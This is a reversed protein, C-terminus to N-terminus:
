KKKAIMDKCFALAEEGPLGATKMKKVYDDLIPSVAKAWRANEEDSLSITQNGKAAAFAKGSKDMADWAAGTKTIWEENVKEIVDQVDKPLKEWRAKNMAVFFTTTYAAGYCETTSKVVEGWRWGELSEEPAMSGDVVGRSLADYTEGMPMSVPTGGLASVIKSSLGTCRVKLGKLDDLTKVPKKTHLFGPGHAHLYMIKVGDFEKPAFKKRFANTMATADVGSRVGLPLDLVESLPFKGRTYSLCSMGIDSIGKEVGDYCVEAKTLTGSPFVTIKVKGDTRKEIEKAWEQALITNKHTPPFFVSYTLEIAKGAGASSASGTTEKKESTQGMALGALGLAIIGALVIQLRASRFGTSRNM